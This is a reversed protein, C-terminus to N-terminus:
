VSLTFLGPSNIPEPFIGKFIWNKWMKKGHLLLDSAFYHKCSLLPALCHNFVSM